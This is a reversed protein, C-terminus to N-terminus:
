TLWDVTIVEVELDNEPDYGAAQSAWPQGGALLAQEVLERVAIANSRTSGVVQIDVTTSAGLLVNGLGFNPSSSQKSFAIYPKQMGQNVADIAIRATPVQQLLPSYAVLLNRLEVEVSM